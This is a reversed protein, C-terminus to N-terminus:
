NVAIILLCNCPFAVAARARSPSNWHGGRDNVISRQKDSILRLL